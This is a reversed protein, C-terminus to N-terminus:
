SNWDGLPRHGDLLWANLYAFKLRTESRIFPRTRRLVLQIQQRPTSYSETAPKKQSRKEDLQQWAPPSRVIPHSNDPSCRVM